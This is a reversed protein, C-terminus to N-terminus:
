HFWSKFGYRWGYRWGYKWGRRGGEFDGRQVSLSCAFYLTSAKLDGAQKMFKRASEKGVDNNSMDISSNVSDIEFCLTHTVFM